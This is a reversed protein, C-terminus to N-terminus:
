EHKQGEGVVSWQLGRESLYNKIREAEQNGTNIILSGLVNNQYQEMGGGLVVFDVELERAMKTFIPQIYTDNALMVKLSTGTEPLLVEDNEGILNILAQPQQFFIDEVNGHLAIQGAEIIAMEECCSRVVSMEHTVIVMTIGIESNIKNLLAIISKSTKPDLASTAEDCLLVKPEMSLARAIAVRQKQGGSLERPRAERKEPIEVLELLERVKTDIFSNKYKWCRLPLAINEYVSLRELLSFQQFIMGISKRFVRADTESLSEVDIGDVVISGADYSELGNICRLLTSKGAGSRGILGYIKGRDISLSVDDLVKLNNFSKELNNIKIM